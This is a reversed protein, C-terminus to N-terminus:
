KKIADIPRLLSIKMIPIVSSVIVVIFVLLYIMLIQRKGIIFPSVTSISSSIMVVNLYKSIFVLLISSITASVLAIFLGEWIFIKIADVSRAGMARLIGIDKKRYEISTAIFNSILTITFILFVIGVYFAIDRVKYITNVLMIINDSYTSKVALESDYPYMNIISKFDKYSSMPILYSTLEITNTKFKSVLEWSYYNYHVSNSRFGTIGIIKLNDYKIDSNIILNMDNSIVNYDKIYNKFFKEELSLKDKSKYKSLYSNLNVMYNKTDFGKIMSIDILVENSSLKNIKKFNNGDYYLVDDEIVAQKVSLNNTLVNSVIEYTNTESLTYINDYKLNDIFKDNVYIKNYVNKIKMGLKDYANIMNDDNSFDVFKKSKYIEYDSNDYNIIGVIKVKGYKGFFYTNSTNLIESYNNPKYNIIEDNNYVSIGSYIILDAVYNSIVIENNNIVERGIIEEKVVDKINNAVVIEGYGAIDYYSPRFIIDTDNINLLAPIQYFSVESNRVKYVPYMKSKVNSKINKIDDENLALETKNFYDYKYESNYKYKEIQVFNEHSDELLKAHSSSVNYSSLTDILSLFLLSFITLIITFLLKIKKYKLTTIGLKFGDKFSLMSKFTTYINSDKCTKLPKTDDIVEGDELSIIRDGYSKALNTDHSVVVVLRDKSIEKLLNMVENATKTDLNGTPEDALIVKPNKILARAIAVRQQEGGSLESIKRYKLNYIELKKLLDDIKDESIGSGRLQMSILINEYVNYTDILNYNQFIFGVYTNRYLDFDHECFNKINKGDVIIDGNDFKDLGGIINLLTSKGSGSKGLIFTMGKNELNISVNKLANFTNRNTSYNKCVNKLVIM